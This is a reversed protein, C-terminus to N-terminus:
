GGHLPTVYMIREQLLGYLILSGVIGVVCGSVRVPKANLLGSMGGEEHAIKLGQFCAVVEAMGILGCPARINSSAFPFIVLALKM